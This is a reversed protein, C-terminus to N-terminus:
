PHTNTISCSVVAGQTLALIAAGSATPGFAFGGTGSCSWSGPSYGAANVGTGVDTLTYTGEVVPGSAVGGQGVVGSGTTCPGGAVCSAQLRFDAPVAIGGAVVKTLALTPAGDEDSKGAYQPTDWADIDAYGKSLQTTASQGPDFSQNDGSSNFSGLIGVQSGIAAGNTGCYAARAASLLAESGSGFMHVNLVAAFYQQLMQMRAQDISSRKKGSSTKSINSWFGGMLVNEENQPLATVLVGCLYADPSGVPSADLPNIVSGSVPFGAPLPGTGNWVNDSLATHTAWFGQTRTTLVQVSDTYTCVVADGYNATFGFTYFASGGPVQNAGNATVGTCASDTLVWGAPLPTHESVSSAGVNIPTPGAAASGNAPPTLSTGTMGSAGGTTDFTFTGSGGTVNKVIKLTPKLGNTYTCTVSGGMPLTITAVQGSNSGGTTCSLSIFDWAATPGSETVTYGGAPLGTIVKQGTNAATAISFSAPMESAGTATYDFSANGGVTHKIITITSVLWNKHANTSDGVNSDGTARHVTIGTVVTVDTAANVVTTGATSSTIQVTCSGTALVTTCTNTGGVFSGPGSVISFSILTGAPANVFGTGDNVNVHGTLTHNTGTANNATAPSIQINADVWNKNANGGDGANADATARHLTIGTVVTVDTAANVVTVGPTASTIQVTCSGTALVTTCTNVGGVFSGPGSVISFSIL